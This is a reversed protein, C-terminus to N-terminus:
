HLSEDGSANASGDADGRGSWGRAARARALAVSLGTLRLWRALGLSYVECRCCDKIKLEGQWWSQVQGRHWEVLSANASPKGQWRMTKEDSEVDAVM